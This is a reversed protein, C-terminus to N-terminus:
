HYNTKLGSSCTINVMRHIYASKKVRFVPTFPCFYLPFWSYLVCKLINIYKKQCLAIPWLAKPTTIASLLLLDKHRSEIPKVTLQRVAWFHKPRIVNLFTLRWNLIIFNGDNRLCSYFFVINKFQWSDFTVSKSRGCSSM